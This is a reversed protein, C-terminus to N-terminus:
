LPTDRRVEFCTGERLGAKSGVQVEGEGGHRDGLLWRRRGRRREEKKVIERLKHTMRRPELGQKDQM